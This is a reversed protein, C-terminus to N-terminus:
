VSLERVGGSLVKRIGSHTRVRLFGNADLGDTVGDYGGAEDVHVQKGRAYSSVSEVRAILTQTGEPVVAKRYGTELSRLMAVLLEARSWTKGTEIQISTATDAIEPPFSDQNLNVGIGIVAFRLQEADSSIETLIGCVKKRGILLDNPWRLDCDIGCNNLISDHVAVGAMLSLWLAQAAQIRPRLLISALISTGSESQWSHGGRGRGATQQDTFFVHGEEVGAAGAHMAVTNTSGTEPIYHLKHSFLSGALASELEGVDYDRAPISM